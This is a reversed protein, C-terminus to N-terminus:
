LPVCPCLRRTSWHSADCTPFADTVLCKGYHRTNKRSSVYNPIDPGVQFTLHIITYCKFITVSSSQLVQVPNPKERQLRLRERLSFFQVVIQVFQCFWFFEWWMSLRRQQMSGLLQRGWARRYTEAFCKPLSEFQRAFVPLSSCRRAASDCNFYSLHGHSRVVHKAWAFQM